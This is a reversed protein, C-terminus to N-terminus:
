PNIKFYEVIQKLSPNGNKGLEDAYPLERFLGIDGRFGFPNVVDSDGDRNKLFKACIFFKKMQSLDYELYRDLGYLQPKYFAIVTDAAEGPVASDKLDGLLPASGAASRMRGPDENARNMQNCLAWTVGYKNRTPIVCNNITADISEKLSREGQNPSLLGLHDAICILYTDPNHYAYSTYVLEGAPNHHKTFTGLESLNNMIEKYMYKGTITGEYFRCYDMLFSVEESHKAILLREEQSILAGKQFIKNVSLSTKGGTLDFIKRATYKAVINQIPLEMNFYLIRLVIKSEPNNLVYQIPNIMYADLIFSSKGSGTSGAILDVRGQQINAMYKTLRGFQKPDLNLGINKGLNGREVQELYRKKIESPPIRM